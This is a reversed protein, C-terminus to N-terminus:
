CREPRRGDIARKGGACPPCGPRTQPSLRVVRNWPASDRLNEASWRATLLCSRRNFLVPDAHRAELSSHRVPGLQTGNEHTIGPGPSDSQGSPTLLFGRTNGNPLLGIGAIYGNTSVADAQVLELDSPAVLSNLDVVGSDQTWVIAHADTATSADGVAEGSTNVALLESAPFGAISGVSRCRAPADIIRRRNPSM